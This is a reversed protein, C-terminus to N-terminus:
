AEEELAQKLAQIDQKLEDPEVTISPLGHKAMLDPLDWRDVSLLEVARSQSLKGQRLLGMVFAEKSAAEPSDFSVMLEDPLELEFRLKQTGM